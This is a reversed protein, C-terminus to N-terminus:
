ASRSRLAEACRLDHSYAASGSRRVKMYLEALAQVQASPQHRDRLVRAAARASQWQEPQRMCEVAQALDSPTDCLGPVDLSELAPIRRGLIPLGLAAAELVSVPAGEWAATHVYVNAGAMATLLRERSLWGTVTVGSAELRRVAQPDGGGLWVWRASSGLARSAASAAAFWDPDKQRTVRGAAVVTLPDGFTVPSPTLRVVNPVYAVRGVGCLRTALAAERPSVAAVWHSRRGLVWEALAYALRVPRGVDRREFAYCHPSYVIHETRLGPMVRVLAGSKSSHAHVVTPRLTRVRDQLTRRWGRISGPLWTVSAFQSEIQAGTDDASRLRGILHHEYSPASKVFDILATTVGGGLAECVHLVRPRQMSAPGLPPKAEDVGVLWTNIAVGSAAAPSRLGETVEQAM